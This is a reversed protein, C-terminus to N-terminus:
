LEGHGLGLEAPPVATGVTAVTGDAPAVAIGGRQPTVRRPERFFWAVLATLVGAGFGARRSLRRLLLTAAAGGAVFPRGAPHMPPVVERALQVFHTLTGSKKEATM